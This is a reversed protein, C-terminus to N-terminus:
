SRLCQIFHHPLLMNDSLVLQEIARDLRIFDAGDNKVARGSCPFGRQCLHDGIGCTRLEGLNICSDSPFLIHLLDHGPRLIGHAHIPFFRDKEDIFDM